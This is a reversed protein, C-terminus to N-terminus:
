GEGLPLELWFISGGGPRDEIGVRGHHALVAAKVVALGLGIGFPPRAEDPNRRMFWRFLDDRHEPPVGPGEDAVSIKVRQSGITAALVIEADAPGHKVANSLLNVIVQTLRRGDAIVVPLKEPLDLRLRQGHKLILPTMTQAAEAVVQNLDTPRLFVRFRGSEISASELLNDVLTQLGLVGLHLANLLEQFEAPSLDPSQDLLLEISAALASLPTRFEHAVNALFHGLLRRLAEEETVDRFVLAVEADGAAPPTLQARTIALTAQRGDALLVTLRERQGPPPMFQSFPASTGAMSFLDDVPHRLAENRPWGTIREAGQSFFTVRGDADLTLTGEVISDLLHNVWDREQRLDALAERLELRAFDLAQAVQSVEAIQSKVKVPRDLDRWSLAGAAAALDDLPRGIRRALVLALGSGLAAVLLIGGLMTWILRRQSGVIDTIDLTVATALGAENLPFQQAYYRQQNLTFRYRGPLPRQDPLSNQVAAAMEPLSSALVVDDLLLIQALELQAAMQRLFAQDVRWGIVVSGLRETEPFIPEAALLWVQPPVVTQDIRFAASTTACFADGVQFGAQALPRGDPACILLLDLNAGTQLTTLYAPLADLEDQSVLRRLTPRQATLLALNLAENQRALYFTRTAASGQNLLAGAQRDLQDGLLWAAPLGVAAATLLILVAFNLAMQMPLSRRLWFFNMM